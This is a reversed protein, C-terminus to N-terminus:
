FCQFIMNQGSNATCLVCFSTLIYLVLVRLKTNGPQTRLINCFINFQIKQLQVFLPMKQLKRVLDMEKYCKLNTGSTDFLISFVKVRGDGEM